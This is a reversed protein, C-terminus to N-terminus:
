VNGRHAGSAPPLRHPEVLGLPDLTDFYDHGSTFPFDLAETTVTPLQKDTHRRQPM